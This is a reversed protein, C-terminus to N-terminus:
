SWCASNTSKWATNVHIGDSWLYVYDVTTLDHETFTRHETKWQETLKTIVTASLGKSSRLFQGLAPVFDWQLPRTPAAAATGRYDESDQTGVSAPAGLFVPM